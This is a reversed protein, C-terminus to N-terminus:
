ASDAEAPAAGAPERLAAVFALAEPGPAEFSLGLYYSPRRDQMVARRIRMAIQAPCVGPAIGPVRVLVPCGLPLFVRTVLGVGGRSFDVLRADVAGSRGLASRAVRVAGEGAPGVAVLAGIDSRFREHERVAL